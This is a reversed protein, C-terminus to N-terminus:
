IKMENQIVPDQYAHKLLNASVHSIDDICPSRLGCEALLRVAKALDTGGDKLYAAPGGTVAIVERLVNAIREGTWSPAVCVALCTVQALTPARTYVLYHHLPLALIALIQGDGLGISTDLLWIAGASFRTDSMPLGGPEVCTRIRALSLRIVWNIVTQPCPAKAIGLLTKLVALVRSVARFSLHAVLFLQLSVWVVEEKPCVAPRQDQRVDAHQKTAQQAQRKYRNRARKLRRLEKRQYRVTDGRELAKHKWADRSKRLKTLASM